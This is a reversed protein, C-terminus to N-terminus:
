CRFDNHCYAVQLVNSFYIATSIHQQFAVHSSCLVPVTSMFPSLCQFLQLVLFCPAGSVCFKLQGMCGLILLCLLLSM